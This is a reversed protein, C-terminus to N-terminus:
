LGSSEPFVFDGKASSKQDMYRYGTHTEIFLTQHWSLRSVRQADLSEPTATFLRTWFVPLSIEQDAVAKLAAAAAAYNKEGFSSNTIRKM